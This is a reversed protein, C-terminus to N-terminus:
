EVRCFCPICEHPYRGRRCGYSASKSVAGHLYELHQRPVHQLLAATPDSNRLRHRPLRLRARHRPRIHRVRHHRRPLTKLSASTPIMAPGSTHQSTHYLTGKFSSQSPFHPVRPIDSFYGTALVLHRCTLSPPLTALRLPPTSQTCATLDPLVPLLPSRRHLQPHEAAAKQAYLQMWLVVESRTPFMPFDEPYPVCPFHDSVKPTHAELSNYRTNWAGGPGDHKDLILYDIDRAQLHAALALGSQGSGVIIVQHDYPLAGNTHGNLYPQPRFPTTKKHLEELVTHVVWAKWENPATNVLFVSGRGTGFRTKFTFGATIWQKVLAPQLCGSIIPTLGGLEHNSATLYKTIKGIGQLSRLDWTLAVFDRWWSHEHFLSSLNLFGHYRLYKDLSYLWQKAISPADVDEPKTGDVLVLPPLVAKAPAPPEIM